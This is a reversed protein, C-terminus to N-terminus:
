LRMKRPSNTPKNTPEAKNIRAGASRTYILDEAWFKEHIAPDNRGAGALFENLLLTLEATAKSTQAVAPGVFTLALIFSCLLKSTTTM